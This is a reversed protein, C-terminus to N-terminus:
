GKKKFAFFLLLIIIVSILLYVYTPIEIEHKHTTAANEHEHGKGIAFTLTAWNSQHTFEGESLEELHITRLYWTGEQKIDLTIVGNENTRYSTLSAQEQTENLAHSHTSGDHTHSLENVQTGVYVLQNALPKQGYRLQIELEHGVHVEYPNKFPIFEIPYNLSTSWDKSLSDGVQIITKVHKAYLEKAPTDLTGDKKRKDLMDTIGDHKLYDNFAQADMEISRAKTSVGIVYTAAEKTELELFTISDKEFWKSASPQIREGGYIISVDEMRDRDIVNESRDFTGNFLQITTKTFPNLFYQDLKLYMDHSSLIALCVLSLLFTSIRKM